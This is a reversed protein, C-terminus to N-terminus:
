FLLNSIASIANGPFSLRAQIRLRLEDGGPEGEEKKKGSKGVRARTRLHLEAAVIAEWSLPFAGALTNLRHM